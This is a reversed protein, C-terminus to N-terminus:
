LDFKVELCKRSSLYDCLHVFKQMKTTPLPLIQEKTKYDDCWEGMHSEVCGKILKWYNTVAIEPLKEELYKVVELPHTAVTYKSGATGHKVGDHILLSILIIDQSYQTFQQTTHNGFLEHAIAMASKTHRVLGGKGLSNAPHYKGTSSAAVTFFYEPLVELARYGFEQLEADEVWDLEKAFTGTCDIVEIEEETCDVDVNEDIHLESHDFKELIEGILSTPVEWQKTAGVYLRNSLTKVRAIDDVDYKFSLFLSYKGKQRNALGRKINIM